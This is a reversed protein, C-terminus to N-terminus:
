GPNETFVLTEVVIFISTYYIKKDYLFPPSKYDRGKEKYKLSYKLSIKNLTKKLPNKM